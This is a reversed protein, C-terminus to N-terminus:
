SARTRSTPATASDLTYTAATTSGDLKKATITTGAIAFETLSQQTLFIAQALTPAAGDAAYSETMQTTLVATANQAATPIDGVAAPAAPILDTKAKIAAVETDLFDDVVTLMAPIDGATQTTGGVKLVNVDLQNAVTFVMKDTQTKIAAVESDVYDDLTNLSSQSARSSVTGDLNTEILEGYSGASGYTATAANWVATAVDGANLTSFGTATIWAADGRDRLAEISDTTQDYTFSGATKTMLEHFVSGVTPPAAGDIDSDANLLEDLRHVVLADEAESQVETDWASNWPVATLGAGAIGIDDTQAEIAIIDAAINTGAADTVVSQYITTTDAGPDGIAQGFTGTTQHGTADEDWVADAIEASADANMSAATIVNAALGNVTTVNTATTITGGTINTTSALTAGTPFTVTGANVVPNTKITEVDVKQTTIISTATLANATTPSGVNGWDVGAEGGTSVDLTRGATTPVLPLAVTTLDNWTKTNVNPVGGVTPTSVAVGLWQTTDAQMVDTGLIMSDYVMAPLIMFEHFVPCHTAADTIALMGRGLYNVDAAALELDYFGADDGTVHVMDNAGGSATPAVDLILTPVNAVDVMLTLKCSTVTLATEPTVGDTKDFFPGVTIRCATNTRLYRM